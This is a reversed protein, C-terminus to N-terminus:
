NRPPMEAFQPIADNIEFWPAKSAVFIHAGPQMGPDADFAGVPVMARNFQEMLRPSPSGCVRCFRQTFFQAEPVKWADAMDEGRIWRFQALKYFANTAHAAGRARQCRSCHCNMMMLPAGEVEWAMAGCLCSGPTVGPKREVAPRAVATGGYEAPYEEFQPLDDTIAHGPAKSGVFIHLQPRIGPDGQLLGAPAIVQDDGLPLPTPSGCTRCFGRRANASSAYEVITDEGRLWRFGARPAVAFTAFLSGHEKRCMSCHCHAMASFPGDIEFQVAGCLCSGTTM